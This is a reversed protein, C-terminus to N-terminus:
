KKRIYSREMLHKSRVQSLNWKLFNMMQFSGLQEMNKKRWYVKPKRSFSPQDKTHVKQHLYPMQITKLSLPQDKINKQHIILKKLSPQLGRIAKLNSDKLRRFSGVQELGNRIRDIKTLKMISGVLGYILVVQKSSSCAQILRYEKRRKQNMVQVKFLNILM